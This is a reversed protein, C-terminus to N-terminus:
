KGGKYFTYGERTFGLNIARYSYLFLSSAYRAIRPYGQTRKISITIIFNNKM